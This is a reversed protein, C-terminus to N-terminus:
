FRLQKRDRVGGWRKRQEQSNKSGEFQAMLFFSRPPICTVKCEYRLGFREILKLEHDM